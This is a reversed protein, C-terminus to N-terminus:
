RSTASTARGFDLVVQLAHRERRALQLIVEPADDVPVVDTLLHDRIASGDTALLRATEESLRSRGWAGALGRPVRNIQACRITLGNHHFEEGLRLNEAGGGYFALDIVVGQPRLSRLAEHLIVDRARCQFVLDAGRDRPGHVWSEKCWRWTETASADVVELGLARAVALRRPDPDAVVVAAAGHRRALLATLLGVVGAGTVLVCRDRVGDGLAPDPHPRFEAAAHLLGNAAIPGMQALFIGLVPDVDPPMPVIHHSGSLVHCSRHGYAAAVVAGVPLDPRRSEVVEAVEMYGMATVPYSRSGRGAVFACLEPDMRSVFAPDTGKVYTLETGSSLGSFLTRVLAEGPGVPPVPLDFFALEYPRAVGLSRCEAMTPARSWSHVARM